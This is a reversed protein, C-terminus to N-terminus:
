VVRSAERLSHGVFELDGLQFRGYSACTDMAGADRGVQCHVVM